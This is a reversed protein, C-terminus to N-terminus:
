GLLMDIGQQLNEASITGSGYAVMKGDADIFFTIPISNIGYVSSAEGETDFYVPFSYVARSIFEKASDITETKGDTLNVMMFHINEGYEKYAEDFDPMEAKCPGCWSAWFNLIVPKGKMQSLSVKNGESDLVTIDPAPSAEATDKAADDEQDEALLETTDPSTEQPIGSGNDNLLRFTIAGGGALLAVSLMIVLFQIKSKM